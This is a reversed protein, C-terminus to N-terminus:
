TTVESLRKSISLLDIGIPTNDASYDVYHSDNVVETYAFPKDSLSIYMADAEKDYEFKGWIKV